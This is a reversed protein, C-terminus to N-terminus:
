QLGDVPTTLVKIAPIGIGLQHGLEFRAHEVYATTRPGAETREIRSFPGVREVYEAELTLDHEAREREVLNSMLFVCFREFDTGTDM